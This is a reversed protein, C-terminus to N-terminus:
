MSGRMVTAQALRCSTFEGRGREEEYQAVLVDVQLCTGRSFIQLLLMRSFIAQACSSSEEKTNQHDLM